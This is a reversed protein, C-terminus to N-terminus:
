SAISSRSPQRRPQPVAHVLGLGSPQGHLDLVQGARATVLEYLDDAQALTFDRMAFDDFVIIQPRSWRALRQEFSRDAHGGALDALLRSTKTFVVTYGRRCAQM